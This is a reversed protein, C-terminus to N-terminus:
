GCVLGAILRPRRGEVREHSLAFRAMKIKEAFIAQFEAETRQEIEEAKEKAEQM